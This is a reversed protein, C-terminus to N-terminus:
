SNQLELRIDEILKALESQVGYYRMNLLNQIQTVHSTLLTRYKKNRKLTEFDHPVM